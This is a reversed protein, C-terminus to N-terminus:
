EAGAPGRASLITPPNPVAEVGVPAHWKLSPDDLDYDPMAVRGELVALVALFRGVEADADTRVTATTDTRLPEVAALLRGLREPDGEILRELDSDPGGDSAPGAPRGVDQGAPRVLPLVTPGPAVLRSVHAGSVDAPQEAPQEPPIRL